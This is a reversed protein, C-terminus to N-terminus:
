PLSFHFFLEHDPLLDPHGIKVLDKLIIDPRLYGLELFESGGKAGMRKNFSYIKQNKFPAFSKYRSDNEGLEDLSAFSGVGIWYEADHAKEFVSEFSLAIFASSTDKGWLYQFGADQLLMSAYNNGGPVFWSDGYVIGSMVTPREAVSSALNRTSQYEEEISNFVSDAMELKDFIVGAVKIWESRGLPHEELYEANLVVPIGAEEILSFQGYDGSLSYGMVMEPKISILREINISEDIGLDEILGSDARTRMEESCIYDTTPFGSLSTTEDLYDLLPIHTTSTCVISEVPIPIFADANMKPKDDYKNYFVYTLSKTAGKFPRNISIIYFDDSKDITFGTAYKLPVSKFEDEKSYEQHVGPITCGYFWAALLLVSIIRIM